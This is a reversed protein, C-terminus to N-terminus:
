GALEDPGIEDSQWQRSGLPSDLRLRAWAAWAAALAIGIALTVGTRVNM